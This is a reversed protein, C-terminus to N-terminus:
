VLKAQAKIIKNEKAIEAQQVALINKESEQTSTPKPKPAQNANANPM